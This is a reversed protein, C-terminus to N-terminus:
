KGPVLVPLVRRRVSLHFVDGVPGPDGDLQLRAQRDCRIEVAAGRHAAPRGLRLRLRVMWALVSRRTPTPLAVVDLLGDTMDADPAPNLGFAYCPANAAVVTGAAEGPPLPRGDISVSVSMPAWRKLQRAIPAAYSRYSISDGRRAALDHVVEADFGVSAMLLFPEGAAQCADVWQVAGRELAALLTAPRRDMGFLGAFLNATGRPVHYLPTGTRIAAGAVARVAGDGGVVVLAAAGDLPGDLWADGPEPRTPLTESAYGAEGLAAALAHAAREGRGAGSIPNFLIPVSRNAM